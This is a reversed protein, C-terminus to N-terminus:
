QAALRQVIEDFSNCERQLQFIAGSAMMDLADDSWEIGRTRGEALRAEVITKRLAAYQPLSLYIGM